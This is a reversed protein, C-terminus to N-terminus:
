IIKSYEELARDRIAKLYVFFQDLDQKSFFSFIPTISDGQVALELSREGKETLTILRRKRKVAKDSRSILGQIELKKLLMSITSTRRFRYRAIESTTAKSDLVKIAGLVSSLEVSFGRNMLERDRIRLIIDHTRGLNRWLTPVLERSIDPKPRPKSRVKADLILMAQNRIIELYKEALGLNKPSLCDTIRLSQAENLFRLWDVGRIQTEQEVEKVIDLVKTIIGKTRKVMLKFDIEPEAVTAYPKPVMTNFRIAYNHEAESCLLWMYTSLQRMEKDSLATLFVKKIARSKKLKLSAERGKETLTIRIVNKRNPDKRRIVLGAQEMARLLVSITHPRRFRVKAIENPTANIGLRQIAKLVGAQELNSGHKKLEYNRIKILIDHVRKLLIWARLYRNGPFDEPLKNVM